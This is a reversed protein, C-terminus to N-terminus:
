YLGLYWAGGFILATALMLNILLGSAWGYIARSRDRSPDANQTQRLVNDRASAVRKTDVFRRLKPNKLQAEAEILYEADKKVRFPLHKRARRLKREYNNGKVDYTEELADSVDRKASQIFERSM